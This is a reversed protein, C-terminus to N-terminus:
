LMPGIKMLLAIFVFGNQSPIQIRSVWSIQARVQCKLLEARNNLSSAVDPHERGLAKELIAQSREYHPGAEAYKGKLTVSFSIAFVVFRRQVLSAVSTCLLGQRNHLWTVIAAHDHEESRYLEFTSLIRRPM